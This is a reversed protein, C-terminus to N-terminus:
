FINHGNIKNLVTEAEVLGVVENKDSQRLGEDIQQLFVLREILIEVDFKEPLEALMTIVDSKKM